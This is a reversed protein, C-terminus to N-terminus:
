EDSAFFVSKLLKKTRIVNGYYNPDGTWNMKKEGSHYPPPLFRFPIRKMAIGGLVPKLYYIVCFVLIALSFIGETGLAMWNNRITGLGEQPLPKKITSGM